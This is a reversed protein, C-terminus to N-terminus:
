TENLCMKISGLLKRPIGFGSLINCALLKSIIIADAAKANTDEFSALIDHM